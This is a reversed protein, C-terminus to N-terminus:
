RRARLNEVAGQIWKKASDLPHSEELFGRLASLQHEFLGQKRLDAPTEDRGLPLINELYTGGLLHRLFISSVSPLNRLKGHPKVGLM